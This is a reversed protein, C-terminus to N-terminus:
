PPKELAALLGELADLDLPKVLHHRFGASQTRLRDEDRGYGTMAIL